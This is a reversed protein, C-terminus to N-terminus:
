RTASPSCASRSRRAPRAATFGRLDLLIADSVHLLEGVAEQWMNDSCFSESIRYRAEPDPEWDLEALRRQM